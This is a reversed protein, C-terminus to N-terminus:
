PVRRSTRHPELHFEGVGQALAQPSPHGPHLQGEVFQEVGGGSPAHVGDDRGHATGGLAGLPDAERAGVVRGVDAHHHAFTGFLGACQGIQGTPGHRGGRARGGLAGHAQAEGLGFEHASGQRALVQGLAEQVAFDVGGDHIAPIRVLQNAIV